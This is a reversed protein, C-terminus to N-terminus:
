LYQSKHGHVCSVKPTMLEGDEVMVAQQWYNERSRDRYTERVPWSCCYFYVKVTEVIVGSTVTPTQPKM